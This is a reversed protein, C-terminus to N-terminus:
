KQQNAQQTYLYVLGHGPVETYCVGRPTSTGHRITALCGAAFARKQNSSATRQNTTAATFQRDRKFFTHSQKFPAQNPSFPTPANRNTWRNFLTATWTSHLGAPIYPCDPGGYKYPHFPSFHFWAPPVLVSEVGTEALILHKRGPLWKSPLKKNKIKKGTKKEEKARKGGASRVHVYWELPALVRWGRSRYPTTAPPARRGSPIRRTWRSEAPTPVAVM